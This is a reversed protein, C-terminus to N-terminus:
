RKGKGRFASVIDCGTLAHFFLIGRSREPALTSTLEHVSIWKLNRGQGFALWMEQLGLEQLQSFTAVAIVLVDTDNAKIMVTKFGGKVADKIHLFIRTDAEEHSCPSIESINAHTHNSLARPGRTIIVRKEYHHEVVREALYDFLETKNTSHRLFNRWNRPLRGTEAAVVTDLMNQLAQESQAILVTDDACRLNNLHKPLCRFILLILTQHSKM